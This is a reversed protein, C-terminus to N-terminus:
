YSRVRLLEKKKNGQSENRINKRSKVSPNHTNKAKINSTNTSQGYKKEKFHEGGRNQPNEKEQTETDENGSRKGKINARKRRKGRHEVKLISQGSVLIQAAFYRTGLNQGGGVGRLGEWGFGEGGTNKECM